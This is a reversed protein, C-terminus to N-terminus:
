KKVLQALIRLDGSGFKEKAYPDEDFISGDMDTDFGGKMRRFNGFGKEGLKKTIKEWTTHKYTAKLSDGLHYSKNISINMSKSIEQIYEIPVNRLLFVSRDWLDNYIGGEGDTYYWLFGKRKTIRVIEDIAKSEDNLHHFVGNQIAMDFTDDQFPTRYVPSVHFTVRDSLGRMECMKRAFNVSNESFDIGTVSAAGSEALAISFTGNGSGMDVCTKGSIVEELNNIKIRHKYRVVKEDYSKKDYKDWLANWLSKHKEEMQKKIDSANIHDKNEIFLIEVFSKFVQLEEDIIRKVLVYPHDPLKKNFAIKEYRMNLTILTLVKFYRSMQTDPISEFYRELEDLKDLYLKKSLREMTKTSM